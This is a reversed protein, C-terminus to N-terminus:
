LPIVKASTALAHAVIRVGQGTVLRCDLPHPDHAVAVPLIGPGLFACRPQDPNLAEGGVVVVGIRLLGDMPIPAVVGRLGEIGDHNLGPLIPLIGRSAHDVEGVSQDVIGEDDEIIVIPATDDLVAAELFALM